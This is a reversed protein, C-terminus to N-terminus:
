VVSNNRTEKEVSGVQDMQPGKQCVSAWGPIRGPGARTHMHVTAQSPNGSTKTELLTLYAGRGGETTTM